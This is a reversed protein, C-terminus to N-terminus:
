LKEIRARLNDLSRNIHCELAEILDDDRKAKLEDRVDHWDKEAMNMRNQARVTFWNAIRHDAGSLKRAM